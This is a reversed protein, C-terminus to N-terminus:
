DLKLIEPQQIQELIEQAYARLDEEPDEQIVKELLPTSEPWLQFSIARIAGRRIESNSSNLYREFIM